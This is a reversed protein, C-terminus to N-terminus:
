SIWQLTKTDRRFRSGVREREYQPTNTIEAACLEANPLSGEALGHIIVGQAHSHGQVAMRHCM